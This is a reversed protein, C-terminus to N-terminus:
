VCFWDSGGGGLGGGDVDEGEVGGMEWGGGWDRAADARAGTGMGEDVGSGEPSVDAGGVAGECGDGGGGEGGVEM